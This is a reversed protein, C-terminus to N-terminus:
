YWNESKGKRTFITNGDWPCDPCLESHLKLLEPQYAKWAVDYAKGAENYAKEAVEYAKWAVICAKRAEDYAKGAVVLEVPLRDEPIIKFLRLRLEQENAPKDRKIYDVREQYDTCWEILTDHHVHFAFGTEM